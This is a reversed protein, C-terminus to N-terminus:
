VLRHRDHHDGRATALLVALAGEFDTHLAVQALRVLLKIQHAIDIVQQPNCTNALSSSLVRGTANSASSPTARSRRRSAMTAAPPRTTSSASGLVSSGAASSADPLRTTSTASSGATSSASSRN